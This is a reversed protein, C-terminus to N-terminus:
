VTSKSVNDNSLVGRVFGTNTLFVKCEIDSPIKSQVFSNLREFESNIIREKLKSVIFYNNFNEALVSEHTIM